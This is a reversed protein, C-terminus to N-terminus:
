RFRANINESYRMNIKSICATIIIIHNVQHQFDQKSGIERGIRNNVFKDVLMVETQIRCDLDKTASGLVQRRTSYKTIDHPFDTGILVMLAKAMM